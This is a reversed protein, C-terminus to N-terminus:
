LDTIITSLFWFYMGTSVKEKVKQRATLCDTSQLQADAKMRRIKKQMLKEKVDTM